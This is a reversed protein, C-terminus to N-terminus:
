IHYEGELQGVGKSFVKPYKKCLHEKSVPMTDELAYVVAHGTAPKQLQDNDLYSVIKMGVCARRGLLPRINTNDVLKCDLKCRRDGRWVRLIVSGVVPLTTGGYATITTRAPIVRTMKFDRSAKKYLELPIVNCQAGTDVQFRLFNGSELKLTVLQSDDLNVASIETPFSRTLITRM